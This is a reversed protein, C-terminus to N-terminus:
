SRKNMIQYVQPDIGYNKDFSARKFGTGFVNPNRQKLDWQRVHM